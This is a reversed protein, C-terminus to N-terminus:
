PAVIRSPECPVIYLPDLGFGDCDICWQDEYLPSRGAGGCGPCLTLDLTDDMSGIRARCLGGRRHMNQAHAFVTVGRVGAPHQAPAATHSARQASPAGGVRKSPSHLVGLNVPRRPPPKHHLEKKRERRQMGATKGEAFPHRDEHVRNTPPPRPQLSTGFPATALSVRPVSARSARWYPVPPCGRM